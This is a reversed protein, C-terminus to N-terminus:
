DLQTGSAHGSRGACDTFSSDPDMLMTTIAAKRISKGTYQKAEPVPSNVSDTGSNSKQYPNHTPM